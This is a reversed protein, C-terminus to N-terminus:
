LEDRWSGLDARRGRGLTTEERGSGQGRLFARLGDRPIRWERGNLRYAGRIKGDRCWTRICAPTRDLEEAVHDVTLDGLAEVEELEGVIEQLEEVSFTLRVDPSLHALAERLHELNTM